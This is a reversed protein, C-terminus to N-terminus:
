KIEREAGKEEEEEEEEEWKKKWGGEVEEETEKYKRRMRTEPRKHTSVTKRHLLGLGEEEQAKGKSRRGGESSTPEFHGIFCIHIITM